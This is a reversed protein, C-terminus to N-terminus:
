TGEHSKESKSNSQQFNAGIVNTPSEEMSYGWALELGFQVGLQLQKNWILRAQCVIEFEYFTLVWEGSCSKLWAEEKKM